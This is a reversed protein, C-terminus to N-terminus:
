SDTDTIKELMSVAVDSQWLNTNACGLSKLHHWPKSGIWLEAHMRIWPNGAIVPGGNKKFDEVDALNNIWDARAMWFNGAFHPWSRSHQWNMGLIDFERLSDFNQESGRVVYHMMLRRWAEKSRDGPRSVGKTHTYLVAGDPNEACWQDLLALTPTEYLRLLTSSGAVEIDFRRLWDVDQKSGLVFSVPRLGEAEFAACQEAVVAKWDGMCAIHYFSKRVAPAVAGPARRDRMRKEFADKCHYPIVVPKPSPVLVVPPKRGAYLFGPSGPADDAMYLTVFDAFIAAVDSVSFRWFDDPYCHYPFGPGRATVVLLGGPRVVAMMNDVAARWDKAHELMETSVVVDWSEPGFRALLDSANVVEDVYGAQPITDVGVYSEPRLHRVLDRASGNVNFSGVELVSKGGVSDATLVKRLFEM